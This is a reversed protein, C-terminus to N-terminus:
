CFLAVAVPQSMANAVFGTSYCLRSQSNAYMHTPTSEAGMESLMGAMSIICRVTLCESSQSGLLSLVWGMAGACHMECACGCAQELAM